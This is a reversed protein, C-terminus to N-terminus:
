TTFPVYIYCIMIKFKRTTFNNYCWPSHPDSLRPAYSIQKGLFVSIKNIWDQTEERM